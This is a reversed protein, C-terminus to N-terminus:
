ESKLGTSSFGGNRVGEADDDITIGHPLFISQAFRDGADLSIDKDGENRMKVMIHGENDSHFYDSDIIGITNALRFKFKFGLGSRPVVALFWGDAIEVRIGTPIIIEEGPKLNVPIPTVLDYGASGTTARKPLSINAYAQELNDGQYAEAYIDRSVKHFKGVKNM